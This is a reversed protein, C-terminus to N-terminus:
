TVGGVIMAAQIGNNRHNNFATVPHWDRPLQRCTAFKLGGNVNRRRSEETREPCPPPAGPKTASAAGRRLRPASAPHSKEPLRPSAGTKEAQQVPHAFFCGPLDRSIGPHGKPQDALIANPGPESRIELKKRSIRSSALHLSPNEAIHTRNRCTRFDESSSFNKSDTRIEPPLLRFGRMRSKIPSISVSPM